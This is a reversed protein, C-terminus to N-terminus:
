PNSRRVLSCGLLLPFCTLNLSTSAKQSVFWGWAQKKGGSIVNVTQLYSYICFAALFLKECLMSKCFHSRRCPLHNWHHFLDPSGGLGLASLLVLIGIAVVGCFWFVEPCPACTSFISKYAAVFGGLLLLPDRSKKVFCSIFTSWWLLSCNPSPESTAAWGMFIVRGGFCARGPWGVPDFRLALPVAHNTHQSLYLKM